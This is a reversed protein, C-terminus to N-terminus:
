AVHNPKHALALLPPSIVVVDYGRSSMPFGRLARRSAGSKYGFTIAPSTQPLCPHAIINGGALRGDYPVKGCQEASSGPDIGM